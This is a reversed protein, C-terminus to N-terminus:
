ARRSIGSHRNALPATKHIFANKVGARWFEHIDEFREDNGEYGSQYSLSTRDNGRMLKDHDKLAQEYIMRNEWSDFM